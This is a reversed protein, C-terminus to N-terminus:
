SPIIELLCREVRESWMQVLHDVSEWPVGSYKEIHVPAIKRIFEDESVVRAAGTVSPGNRSGFTLKVEPNGGIKRVKLSDPYTSVYFRGDHYDFWVPM